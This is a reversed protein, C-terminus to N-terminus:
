QADLVERVKRGLEAPGFPKPLFPAGTYLLFSEHAGDAAYGSMFVAKLGPSAKHIEEYAEKGGMVPMAVDLVAIAVAERNRLFLEVAERGNRSSLVTYGLNKLTDEVLARVQDDDEAVLVTETGGRLERTTAPLVRDPPGQVSPLYIKFTAGQGPESYLHIFGNHQKVIGYVMALGLGTGKSPGKTTFFPEFVREQTKADMGVGTDSISLVVFSGVNMHPHYRVYEEDLDAVSTAITLRGGGPMADRANLVLNMVVQEIQGPDAFVAPLDAALDMRIDIGEGAVKSVLKVLDRVVANLSLNSPSITQRRSYALLQRTLTAAREASRVMENLYSVATEDGKVYPRLMEGFGFIGTLANNFDHAVGGALTGVAEMRQATQLQRELLVKDTVDHVMSLVGTIKGSADQLPNNFWECMLKRGDKHLNGNTSHTAEGDLLRRWVSEIAPMEEEPVLFGAAKRGTAEGATWGFIREAAPNWGAVRFEMDWVIYGLPMKDIHFTLRRNAERIGEIWKASLVAVASQQAFTELDSIDAPSFGDVRDGYVILAGVVTGDDSKLPLAALSRLGCELYTERWLAFQTEGLLDRCVFTRGTRIVSGFASRGKPSDDWRIDMKEVIQKGAGRVVAVRVSHDPMALGIWCMRYGMRVTADCIVGLTEDLDAGRLINLDVRHLASLMKLSKSIQHETEKRETINRVVEIGAVIEGSADRLPSATVEVFSPKGGREEAVEGTHIKGTVFARAVVCDDCVGDRGHYAKYCSEGIHHGVRDIQVQNQYLIRYNRDVINIGDGIGAIIAESRARENEAATAAERLAEQMRRSEAHGRQIESAMEDFAAGLQGVEGSVAQLGARSELDGAALRKSADTLARVPRAILADGLYWIIAFFAAGVLSLIALNAALLRYSEAYMPGLPIGLIAYGEQGPFQGEIRSFLFHRDIGDAGANRFTGSKGSKIKELLAPEMRSGVPFLVSKPYSTLVAGENDIKLYISDKPTQADIEGEFKKVVSLDLSAFLISSVRGREDFVPYAFPVIHKGVIRGVIHRGMAFSRGWLASQFHELDNMYLPDKMPVASCVVQGDPRAVGFNLYDPSHEMVRALFEGCPKGEMRVQPTEAIAAMLHRTGRIAEEEHLVAFNLINGMRQTENEVEARRQFWSNLLFLLVIPLSALFGLLILKSRISSPLIRRM